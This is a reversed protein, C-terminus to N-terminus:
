YRDLSRWALDELNDEKSRSNKELSRWALGELNDEKSRSNKEKKMDNNEKSVSNKEKGVFVPIKSPTQLLQEVVNFESRKILRLVEDDDNPKLMSSEGSQCMPASIPNVMPVDVKKSVATEEVEKSFVLGFVRGSRTVKAIDAINVVFNAMPLLVEQGNSRNVNNSSSSDFQIVVREPTKFMPVIVNVDDVKRSQCVLGEDMLRHIDKKVIVCGRPNVSCIVCGDHDHECDSVLCIGRHIAVLYQRIHRVDYVKYEGPCGDVMNVSANGLAPLSNAKVNPARNEFSVMGSKM